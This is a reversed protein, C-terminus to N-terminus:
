GSHLVSTVTQSCGRSVEDIDSFGERTRMGLYAAGDQISAESLPLRHGQDEVFGAFVITGLPCDRWSQSSASSSGWSGHAECM